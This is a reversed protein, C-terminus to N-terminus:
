NLRFLSLTEKRIGHREHEKNGKEAGEREKKKESERKRERERLREREKVGV